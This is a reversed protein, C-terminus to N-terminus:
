TILDQLLAYLGLPPLIIKIFSNLRYMFKTPVYITDGPKIEIDEKKKDIIKALNVKEETRPNSRRTIKLKKINAGEKPGGAKTVAELLTTGKKLHYVGPNNVAGYIFVKIKEVKEVKKVEKIKKPVYLIDGAKLLVNQTQDREFFLKDLNIIVVQGDKRIIKTHKKDANETVGGLDSIFDFLYTKGKLIHTGLGSKVEGLVTIKQSGYQKIGITVQPKKIYETLYKAVMKEIQAITFGAVKIDGIIPVSIKGDPNITFSKTLEPYGPVSVSIIDGPGLVYEDETDKKKSIRISTDEPIEIKNLEKMEDGKERKLKELMKKAESVNVKVETDNSVKLVQTIPSVRKAICKIVVKNGKNFIKYKPPSKFCLVVKTIKKVKHSNQEAYIKHINDNPLTIEKNKTKLKAGLFYIVLKPPQILHLYAYEPTTNATIVVETYNETQDVKINTIKYTKKALAPVGMLFISIWAILMFYLLKAKITTPFNVIGYRVGKKEVKSKYNATKKDEKKTKKYDM